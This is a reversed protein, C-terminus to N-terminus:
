TMEIRKALEIDKVMLSEIKLAAESITMPEMQSHRAIEKVLSCTLKRTLYAVITRGYGGMRDRTLSLSRYPFSSSTQAGYAMVIM